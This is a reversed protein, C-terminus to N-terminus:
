QALVVRGEKWKVLKVGSNTIELCTMDGDDFCCCGSNYYTPKEPRRPQYDKPFQNRIRHLESEIFRREEESHVKELRLILQDFHTLSQFIPQHTHGAVLNLGPAQRASWRYMIENHLSINDLSDSLSNISLKFLRQIPSWINAVVWKSFWNGDSRIDGQHGHAIFYHQDPFKLLLGEYFYVKAGLAQDLQTRTSAKVLYEQDHNGILRYSRRAEVFSKEAEFSQTHVPIIKNLTSEWLEEADGNNILCFGQEFYYHLAKQYAPSTRVFDDARDGGGKHQDSVVVWKSNPEAEITIGRKSQPDRTDKLLADLAAHVKAEDPSSSWKNILAVLRKKLM